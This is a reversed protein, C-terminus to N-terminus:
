IAAGGHDSHQLRMTNIMDKTEATIGAQREIVCQKLDATLYIM